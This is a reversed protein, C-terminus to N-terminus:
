EKVLLSIRHHMKRLKQKIPKADPITAINHIVINPDISPMETYSWTFNKSHDQLFSAFDEQEVVDLSKGIKLIHPDDHTNINIKVTLENLM